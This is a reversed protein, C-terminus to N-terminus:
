SVLLEHKFNILQQRASQDLKQSLLISLKSQLESKFSNKTFSKNNQKGAAFHWLIFDQVTFDRLWYKQQETAFKTLLTVDMPQNLMNCLWSVIGASVFHNINLDDKLVLDSIHKIDEDNLQFGGMHYENIKEAFIMVREVSIKKHARRAYFLNQLLMSYCSLRDVQSLLFRLANLNACEGWMLKNQYHNHVINKIEKSSCAGQMTLYKFREEIRSFDDNTNVLESELIERIILNLILCRTDKHSVDCISEVLSDLLRSSALNQRISQYVPESLLNYLKIWNILIKVNKTGSLSYSSTELLWYASSVDLFDLIKAQYYIKNARTISAGLINFQENTDTVTRESILPTLSCPNGQSWHKIVADAPIIQRKFEKVYKQELIKEISQVVRRIGQSAKKTKTALRELFKLFKILYQGGSVSRDTKRSSWYASTSTFSKYTQLLYEKFISPKTSGHLPYYVVRKEDADDLTEALKLTDIVAQTPGESHLKISKLTRSTRLNIAKIKSDELTRYKLSQILVAVLVTVVCTFTILWAHSFRSELAKVDTSKLMEIGYLNLLMIAAPLLMILTLLARYSKSTIIVGLPTFFKLEELKIGVYTEGTDARKASDGITKATFSLLAILSVDVTLMVLGTKIGDDASLIKDSFRINEPLDYLMITIILAFLM